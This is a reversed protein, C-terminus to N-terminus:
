PSSCELEIRVLHKSDVWLTIVSSLCDICVKSEVKEKSIFVTNMVKNVKFRVVHYRKAEKGCDECHKMHIM